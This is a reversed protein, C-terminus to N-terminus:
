WNMMIKGQDWRLYGLGLFGIWGQDQNNIVIVGRNGFNGLVGSNGVERLKKQHYIAQYM